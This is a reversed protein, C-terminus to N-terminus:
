LVRNKPQYVYVVDNGLPFSDMLAANGPISPAPIDGRLNSNNSVIRHIEDWIGLKIFESQTKPGGEVLLSNGSCELIDPWAQDLSPKMIEQVMSNSRFQFPLTPAPKKWWVLVKPSNGSFYRLNLQPNDALITGAGVLIAQHEARLKHGYVLAQQGSIRLRSEPKAQSKGAMGEPTEAWKLTVFPRQFKRQTFYHRNLFRNEKDLCGVLVEIGAETLRKIGSGAVRLDPDMSGIVIRNPRMRILLDTCPPTKGYHNCPELSVYITGQEFADPQGANKWAAVEAHDGGFMPHFGESVIEAGLAWVSGVMPNNGVQYKGKEALNLCRQMLLRLNAAGEMETLEM